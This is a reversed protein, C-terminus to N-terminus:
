RRATSLGRPRPTIEAPCGSEPARAGVSSPSRRVSKPEVQCHETADRYIAIPLTVTDAVFSLPLDFSILAGIGAEGGASAAMVPAVIDFVTGRYTHPLHWPKGQGSWDM